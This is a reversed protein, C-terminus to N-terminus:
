QALVTGTNKDIYSFDDNVIINDAKHKHVSFHDTKM